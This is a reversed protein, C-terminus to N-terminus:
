LVTTAVNTYWRKYFAKWLVQLTFLMLKNGLRCLLYAPPQVIRPENGPLPLLHEANWLACHARPKMWGRRTDPEKGPTSRSLRINSREHGVWASTLFPSLYLEVEGIHRQPTSPFFKSYASTVSQNKSHLCHIKEAIHSFKYICLQNNPNWAESPLTVAYHIEVRSNM